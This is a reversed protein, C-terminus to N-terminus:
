SSLNCALEKASKFLEISAINLEIMLKESVCKAKLIWLINNGAVLEYDEFNRILIGFNKGSPPSFVASPHNHISAVHHKDFENDSFYIKVEDIKGMACKLIEGTKYDFYIVCEYELNYTKKIFEDITKFSSKNFNKPLDAIKISPANGIKLKEYKKICNNDDTKFSNLVFLNKIIERLNM